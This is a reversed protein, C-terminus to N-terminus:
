DSELTSLYVELSTLECLTRGTLLSVMLLCCDIHSVFIDQLAEQVSPQTGYQLYGKFNPLSNNLDAVLQVPGDPGDLGGRLSSQSSGRLSM